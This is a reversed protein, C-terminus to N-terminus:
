RFSINAAVEWMRFAAAIEEHVAAPTLDSAAILHDLATMKRCNRAGSFEVDDRVLRYTVVPVQGNVSQWHVTNGGLKLLNFAAEQAGGPSGFACTLLGSLLGICLRNM